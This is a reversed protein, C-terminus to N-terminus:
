IIGLTTTSRIHCILSFVKKKWLQKKNKEDLENSSVCNGYTFTIRNLEFLVDSGSSPIPACRHEVNGDFGVDDYRYPHDYRLWRKHGM